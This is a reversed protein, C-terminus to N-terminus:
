RALKLVYQAQVSPVTEVKGQKSRFQQEGSATGLVRVWSSVTAETAQPYDVWLPCRESSPCNLVLLQIVSRGERVEVNYVRGDFAVKQGRYHSANQMLKAYTITADAKFSAAALTMDTVRRLRIETLRPVKNPARASVHLVYDGPQPLQAQHRFRGDRVEIARNEIMVQAGPEVAGAVEVLSQDTVVDSGPRDIQLGTVPLSLEAVGDVPAAAPLAVHYKARLEFRQGTQPPIPYSKLAHGRGDLALAAGDVTVKSGPLADVVLEVAPAEASLAAIDMRVRYDVLLKVEATDVDGRPDVVDISLRNEGLSLADASLPFSARGAALARESGAFRVKSGPPSGPVEVELADGTETRVVKVSLPAGRGRLLLAAAVLLLAVALALAAFLGVRRPARPVVPDLGAEVSSSDPVPTFSRQRAELLPNSVNPLPAPEAGQAGGTLQAAAAAQVAAAVSAPAVGLM